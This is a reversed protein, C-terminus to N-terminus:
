MAWQHLMATTLGYSPAMKQEKKGELSHEPMYELLLLTERSFRSGLLSLEALHTWKGNQQLVVKLSNAALCALSELNLAISFIFSRSAKNLSNIVAALFFSFSSEFVLPSFTLHSKKAGATHITSTQTLRSLPLAQNGAGLCPGESGHLNQVTFVERVDKPDIQALHEFNATYQRKSCM